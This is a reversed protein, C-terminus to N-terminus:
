FEFVKDKLRWLERETLEWIVIEPKETKIIETSYPTGKWLYYSRRFNESIFPILGVGFSDRYMLLKPLKYDSKERVMLPCSIFIKPCDELVIKAEASKDTFIPTIEKFNGEVGMQIALDNNPAVEENISFDSLIKPTINKFDQSIRNILKQYAVFAGMENWHTDYKLYVAGNNKAALLEEKPNIFVIKEDGKLFESLQDLRSDERVKKMYSPLYEPYISQKNPAVMFYFKIGLKKFNESIGELNNKIEKLDEQSFAQANVTDIYQIDPTYFLWNEKGITIAQNPSVGFVRYRLWRDAVIFLSRLPFNDNFYNTFQNPFNKYFGMKPKSALNRNENLVLIQGVGLGLAIVPGLIILWFLIILGWKQKM